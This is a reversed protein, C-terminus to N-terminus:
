SDKKDTGSVDNTKKEISFSMIVDTFKTQKGTKPLYTSTLKVRNADKPKGCGGGCGAM